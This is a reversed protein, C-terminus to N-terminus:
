QGNIFNDSLSYSKNYIDYEAFKNVYTYLEEKLINYSTEVKEDIYNKVNAMDGVWEGRENIFTFTKEADHLVVEKNVVLQGYSNVYITNNDVYASIENSDNISIGDGATYSPINSKIESLEDEVSKGDNTLVYASSTVPYLKGSDDHIVVPSGPATSAHVDEVVDFKPFVKSSEYSVNLNDVIENIKDVTANYEYSHLISGRKKVQINLHELYSLEAM